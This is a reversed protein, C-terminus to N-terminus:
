KGSHVIRLHIFINISRDELLNFLLAENAIHQPFFPISYLRSTRTVYKPGAM